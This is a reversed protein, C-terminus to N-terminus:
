ASASGAPLMPLTWWQAGQWVPHTNDSMRLLELFTKPDLDVSMTKLVHSRSISSSVLSLLANGHLYISPVNQSGAKHEVIVVKVVLDKGGPQNLKSECTVKLLKRINAHGRRDKSIRQVVFYMGLTPIKLTHEHHQWKVLRMIEALLQAHPAQTRKTADARYLKSLWSAPSTINSAKASSPMSIKLDLIAQRLSPAIEQLSRLVMDLETYWPVHVKHMLLSSWSVELVQGLANFTRYDMNRSLRWIQVLFDSELMGYEVYFLHGHKVIGLFGFVHDARLTCRFDKHKVVTEALDFRDDASAFERSGDSAITQTHDLLTAKGTDPGGNVGESLNQWVLRNLMSLDQPLRASSKCVAHTAIATAIAQLRRASIRQGEWWFERDRTLRIEQVIWVRSWYNHFILRLLARSM